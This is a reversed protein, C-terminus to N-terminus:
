VNENFVGGFQNSNDGNCVVFFTSLAVMTTVFLNM